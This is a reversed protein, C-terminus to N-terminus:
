KYLRQRLISLYITFIFIFLTLCTIIWGNRKKKSLEEMLWEQNLSDFKKVIFYRRFNYGLILIAILTKWLKYESNNLFQDFLLSNFNSSVLAVTTVFLGLLFIQFLTIFLAGLAEGSKDKFYNLYISAIRFFIYDFATM